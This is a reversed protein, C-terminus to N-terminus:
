LRHCTNLILKKKKKKKADTIPKNVSWIHQSLLYNLSDLSTRVVKEIIKIRPNFKLKM